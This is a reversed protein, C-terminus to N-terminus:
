EEWVGIVRVGNGAVHPGDHGDELSCRWREDGDSDYYEYGDDYCDYRSGTEDKDGVRPYDSMKEAFKWSGITAGGSSDRIVGSDGEEGMVSGVKGAIALLAAAVDDADTMSSKSMDIDLRFKM